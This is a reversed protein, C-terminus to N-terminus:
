AAVMAGELPYGVSAWDSLGGAYRRVYKYGRSVLYYYAYISARCIENACYVVIEDDLNLTEVADGLQHINLSGPIHQARFQGDGLVFVLKIDENRDLKDKLEERPILKM